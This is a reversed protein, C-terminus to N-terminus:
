FQFLGEASSTIVVNTLCLLPCKNKEATNLETDTPEGGGRGVALCSTYSFSAHVNM